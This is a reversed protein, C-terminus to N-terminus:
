SPLMRRPDDKPLAKAIARGLLGMDKLHKCTGWRINGRCSCTWWRANPAADFSVLYLSNSSESRIKFRYKFRDTDGLYEVASSDIVRRLALNAQPTGSQPKSHALLRAPRAM